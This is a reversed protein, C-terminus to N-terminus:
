YGKNREAGQEIAGGAEEIDEGAGEITNCGSVVGVAFGVLAVWAYVRSKM